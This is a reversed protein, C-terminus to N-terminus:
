AVIGIQLVNRDTGGLAPAHAFRKHGAAAAHNGASIIRLNFQTDHGVDAAIFSQQMGKGGPQIHM